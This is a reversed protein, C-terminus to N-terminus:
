NQQLNRLTPTESRKKLEVYLDDIAQILKNIDTDNFITYDAQIDNIEKESQHSDGLFGPRIIKIIVGGNDKVAKAENLFRCDDVVVNKGAVNKKWKNVWYNKDESRRFETGWNQMLFRVEECPKNELMEDITMKYKDAWYKLLDPLSQKLENLLETKFNIRELGHKALHASCKSKGSRKFGTFAIIM